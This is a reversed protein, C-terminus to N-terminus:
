EKDISISSHYFKAKRQWWEVLAGLFEQAKIRYPKLLGQLTLGKQRVVKQFDDSPTINAVM